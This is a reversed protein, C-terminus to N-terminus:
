DASSILGGINDTEIYHVGMNAYHELKDAHDMPYIMWQCDLWQPLAEPLLAVDVCLTNPQLERATNATSESFDSIVWVINDCGQGQAPQRAYALAGQHFSIIRRREGLCESERLITNMLPAVGFYEISHSKPEIFVETEPHECLLAIMSQLTCIPEGLFQEAFRQPYHASLKNLEVDSHQYILGAQGTLRELNEDHFVYATGDASCQVDFEIAKVGTQLASQISTLTNEPYKEPFGRHGVLKYM